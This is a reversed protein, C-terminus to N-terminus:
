FFYNCFILNGYVDTRTGFDTNVLVHAPGHLLAFGSGDVVCAVVDPDLEGIIHYKGSGPIGKKLQKKLADCRYQSMRLTVQHQLSIRINKRVQHVHATQPLQCGHANGAFETMIGHLIGM